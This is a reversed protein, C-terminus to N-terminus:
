ISRVAFILILMTRVIPHCCPPSIVTQRMAWATKKPQAPSLWPIHCCRTWWSKSGNHGHRRCLRPPAHSGYTHLTIDVVLLPGIAPMPVAFLFPLRFGIPPAGTGRCFVPAARAYAPVEFLMYSNRQVRTGYRVNGYRFHTTEHPRIAHMCDYDPPHGNM